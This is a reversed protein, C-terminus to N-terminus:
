ISGLEENRREKRDDLWCVEPIPGPGWWNLAKAETRTLWRIKEVAKGDPDIIMEAYGKNM